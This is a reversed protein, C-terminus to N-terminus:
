SGYAHMFSFLHVFFLILIFESQFIFVSSLSCFLRNIQFVHSYPSITLNKKKFFSHVFLSNSLTDTKDNTCYHTNAYQNIQPTNSHTHQLLKASKGKRSDAVNRPIASIKTVRQGAPLVAIEQHYSCVTSPFWNM